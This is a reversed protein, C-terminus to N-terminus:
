TPIFVVILTAAHKARIPPIEYKNREFSSSKTGNIIQKELIPYDIINLVVSIDTLLNNGVNNTAFAYPITLKQACVTAQKAGSTASIM